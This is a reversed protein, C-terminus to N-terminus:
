TSKDTERDVKEFAKKATMLVVLYVVTVMGWIFIEFPWLRHTTPDLLKSLAIVLCWLLLILLPTAAMWRWHGQWKRVVAWNLWAISGPLAIVIISIFLNWILSSRQLTSQEDALLQASVSSLTAIWPPSDNGTVAPGTWQVALPLSAVVTETSSSSDRYSLALLDIQGVTPLSVSMLYEGAGAPLTPSPDVSLTVTDGAFYATSYIKIPNESHYSLRLHFKQGGSLFLATNESQPFTEILSVEVQASLTPSYCAALCLLVAVVGKLSYGSHATVNACHEIFSGCMM